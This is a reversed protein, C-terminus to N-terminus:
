HALYVNDNLGSHFRFPCCIATGRKRHLLGNLDESSLDFGIKTDDLTQFATPLLDMRDGTSEDTFDLAERFKIGMAYTGTSSEDFAFCVDTMSTFDSVLTFDTSETTNWQYESPSSYMRSPNIPLVVATYVLGSSGESVTNGQALSYEVPIWNDVNSAFVAGGCGIEFTTNAFGDLVDTSQQVDSLTLNNLSATMNVMNTAGTIPFRTINITLNM